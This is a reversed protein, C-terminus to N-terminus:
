VTIWDSTRSVTSHSPISITSGSPMKYFILFPSFVARETLAVNSNPHAVLSAGPYIYVQNVTQAQNALPFFSFLFLLVTLASLQIGIQKLDKV